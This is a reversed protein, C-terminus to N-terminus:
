ARYLKRRRLIQTKLEGALRPGYFVIIAAIIIEM